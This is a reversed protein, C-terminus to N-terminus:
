YPSHNITLIVNNALFDTILASRHTSVNDHLLFWIGKERYEPRVRSISELLHKMVGLYFMDDVTQSKPVFERHM